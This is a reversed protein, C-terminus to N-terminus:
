KELLLLCACPLFLSWWKLGCRSFVAEVCKFENVLILCQLKRLGRKPGLILFQCVGILMLNQHKM